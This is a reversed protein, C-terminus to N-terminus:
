MFINPKSDILTRTHTLQQDFKRSLLPGVNQLDIVRSLHAHKRRRSTFEVVMSRYEEVGSHFETRPSVGGIYGSGRECVSGFCTEGYYVSM